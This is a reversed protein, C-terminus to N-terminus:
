IGSAKVANLFHGDVGTNDGATPTFDVVKNNRLMIAYEQLLMDNSNGGTGRHAFLLKQSQYDDTWSGNSNQQYIQILYEM